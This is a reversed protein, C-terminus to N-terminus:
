LCAEQPLFSMLSSLPSLLAPTGPSPLTGPTAPLTAPTWPAGEKHCAQCTSGGPAAALLGAGALAHSGRGSVPDPAPLRPRPLSAETDARGKPGSESCWGSGRLAGRGLAPWVCRRESHHLPGMAPGPLWEERHDEPLAGPVCPGPGQARVQEGGRGGWGEGLATVLLSRACAAPPSPPAVPRMQPQPLHLVEALLPASAPHACARGSCTGPHPGPSGKCAKRVRLHWSSAGWGPLDTAM